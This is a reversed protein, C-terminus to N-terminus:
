IEEKKNEILTLESCDNSLSYAGEANKSNLYVQLIMQLTITTNNISNQLNLIIQKTKVDLKIVKEEGM